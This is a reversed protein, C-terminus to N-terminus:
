IVAIEVESLNADHVAAKFSDYFPKWDTLEGSFEKIVLRPLKVYNSKVVKNTEEENKNNLLVKHIYNSKENSIIEFDTSERLITEMLKADDTLEIIEDNLRTIVDTKQQLTQLIANLKQTKEEKDVSTSSIIKEDNSFLEQIIKTLVDRQMLKKDVKKTSM